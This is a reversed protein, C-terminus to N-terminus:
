KKRSRSFGFGSLGFGFLGSGLLWIAGPIPVVATSFDGSGDNQFWWSGDIEGVGGSFRIDNIRLAGYVNGQGQTGGSIYFVYQGESVQLSGFNGYNWPTADTVESIYNLNMAGRKVNSDGTQSTGHFSVATGSSYFIYAMHIDDVGDGIELITSYNSTDGGWDTIIGTTIAGQAQPLLVLMFICAAIGNFLKRLMVIRGKKRM